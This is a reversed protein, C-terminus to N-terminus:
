QSVRVTPKHEPSYGNPSSGQDISVSLGRKGDTSAPISVLTVTHPIRSCPSDPLTVPTVITRYYCHGSSPSLASSNM